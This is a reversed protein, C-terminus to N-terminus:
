QAWPPTFPAQGPLIAQGGVPFITVACFDTNGVNTLTLDTDPPVILTDGEEIDHTETGIQASGQGATCVFIEEHTLRHPTAKTGPAIRLHWVANSTSGRSPSALGTFITGPLQFTPAASAKTIPM